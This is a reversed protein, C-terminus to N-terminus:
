SYRGAPLAAEIREAVKEIPYMTSKVLAKASMAEVLGRDDDLRAIAGALAESDGAPVILGDVGDEVVEGCRRTAIVPMGFTMAELQTLAFGDSMTPLVFVDSERFLRLAEERLVKGVV